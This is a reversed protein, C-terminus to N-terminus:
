RLSAAWDVVVTMPQEDASSEPVVALFRTGDRSIQFNLWPRGSITFIATPTGTRLVPSTQVPLAMMRGDATLYFLTKGDPGWRLLRAGGSSLRVKEGPGPFPTLYAEAQGSDSALFALFRGDPSFRVEKNDYASQLFPKAEGPGSLPVTWIDFNGTRAREIYVLIRGDPSVDQAQQFADQVATLRTEAGSILDRRVLVPAFGRNASYVISTGGPLEIPFVETDDGTTIRTEIGRELDWSWVDFTGLGAATRDFFIRRGQRDLALNLYNGPAGITELARGERDFWVLRNVDEHTQYVLTGSPSAAFSARGTSLFYNVSDAVAIPDGALRGADADFRQAMLAGDRVFVLYGPAVYQAASGVRAIETGPKGLTALMLRRSGDKLRASYVYRRGDPLFWPWQLRVENESAQVLTEPTGGAAPVRQIARGQVDAFLIDGGAGWTGARGGGSPLDCVPVPSADPALLVRKIKGPAFFGISKGDPSWFLSTAAETGRVPQAQLTALDRVWITRTGPSEQAAVGRGAASVAFPASVFAIRAGDPSVAVMTTEYTTFFARGPPPPLPFTVTRAPPGSPTRSKWLAVAAAVAVLGVLAALLWPWIGRRGPARVGAGVAPASTGSEELSVLQLGVDHATQWRADPDKALCTKVLRDLSPPSLARISSVPPPESTLIASLVSAQSTGQFAKRGTAAEYLTAGLSFIDSRADVPKGELQEPSMYSLTGVISGERTVDAAATQASTMQGDGALPSTAKALGFDLLKVGSKTLMVNSPKLDRHVIGKRHAATLAACIEAGVRGLAETPLPGRALREALTEGELLETVAYAIGRETGFDHIALINPHSLAAISRAEREFRALAEADSAVREPLVKIAVERHLRSDRARYVEGMGGAGIPAIVEYPGLKTGAVLTM